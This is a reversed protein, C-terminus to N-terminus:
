SALGRQCVRLRSGWKRSVCARLAERITRQRRRLSWAGRARGSHLVVHMPRRTSVPRELKRGRRFAGGHETRSLEARLNPSFLSLQVLLELSPRRFVIFLILPLIIKTKAVPVLMPLTPISSKGVSCANSMEETARGRRRVAGCCCGSAGKM